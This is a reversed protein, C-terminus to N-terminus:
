DTVDDKHMVFIYTGADSLAEDFRYGLRDFNKMEEPTKIQHEAMYRVMEGRAMKVMTGKEKIKGDIKEGFVVDIWECDDPWYRKISRSYENSALNIICNTEELLQEALRGGWYDYLSHFGKWDIKAQMELRYAVIGDFPRLLGYFGSLIRLHEEVYALSAMEFVAPAMYQYQIGEYALIAPNQPKRVDMSAFREFNLAAIKDNCKWLKKAEGYSLSSLYNKLDDAEELFQPLRQWSLPEPESHMKKAPSIIMRM